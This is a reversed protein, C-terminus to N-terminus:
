DYFVGAARQFPRRCVKIEDLVAFVAGLILVVLTVGCFLYKSMSYFWKGLQKGWALNVQELASEKRCVLFFIVAALM